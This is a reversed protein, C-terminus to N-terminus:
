PLWQPGFGNQAIQWLKGTQMAYVWIGPQAADELYPYRQMLLQDGAPTLSLAGHTFNEDVVLPKVESTVPDLLYVQPARSSLQRRAIVLAKGDPTWLPQSDDVNTNERGSLIRIGEEPKTLDIMAIQTIFGQPTDVISLFALRNRSSDLAAVPDPSPIIGRDGSALDYIVLQGGAISKDHVIIRAGDSSWRPLEGLLQSDTFLPATTLDKLTVIWTRAAGADLSQIDKNLEVREYAIRSGDPSWAPNQCIANICHTIRQPQVKSSDNGSDIPIVYLDATGDPASESYAVQTGDPGPQFNLVGTTSFTLQRSKDPATPDVIWLNTPKTDADRVAPALYIVQPPLVEFTWHEDDILHRGQVSKAGKTLTVSYKGPLFATTPKFAVQDGTWTLQGNVPPDIAFGAEVSTTDMAESFAIRILTTTHARAGPSVFTVGVGARDGMAITVTIGLLLVVAAIIVGIDFRDLRLSGRALM